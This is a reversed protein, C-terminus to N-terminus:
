KHPGTTSLDLLDYRCQLYRPFCSPTLGIRLVGSVGIVINALTFPAISQLERHFSTIAIFQAPTAGVDFFM